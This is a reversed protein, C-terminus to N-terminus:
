GVGSAGFDIVGAHAVLLDAGLYGCVVDPGAPRPTDSYAYLDYVMPTTSAFSRGGTFLTVPESPRYVAVVAGGPGHEEDVQEGLELGHARAFDIDLTTEAVTSVVFRGRATDPAISLECTFRGTVTDRDLGVARGRDDLDEPRAVPEDHWRCSLAAPAGFDVVAGTAALWDVGLMGTWNTTPLDFVEVRVDSLRNGAVVLSDVQTHGRGASSLRLDPGLGFDREKAVRRGAVHLLAGHTLMAVFGANAHVLMTLEVDDVFATVLPRLGSDVVFRMPAQQRGSAAPLREGEGPLWLSAM